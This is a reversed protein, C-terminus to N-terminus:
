YALSLEGCAEGLHIVFGRREEAHNPCGVDDCNEMYM